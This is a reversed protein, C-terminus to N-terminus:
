SDNYFIYRGGSNRTYFASQSLTGTYFPDRDDYCYIKTSIGLGISISSDSYAEYPINHSNCGSFSIHTPTIEAQVLPLSSDLIRMKYSGPILSVETVIVPAKNSDDVKNKAISLERQNDASQELIFRINDTDFKAFKNALFM